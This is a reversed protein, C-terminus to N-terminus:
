LPTGLRSASIPHREAEGEELGRITPHRFTVYAFSTQASTHTVLMIALSKKSTRSVCVSTCPYADIIVPKHQNGGDPDKACTDPM